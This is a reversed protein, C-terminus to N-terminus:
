FTYRLKLFVEDREAIASLGEYRTRVNFDTQTDFLQLPYRAVRNLGPGGYFGLVGVTISFSGTMRYTLQSIVGGSASGFDHVFVLSPLLRDQFYGTAVALTALASFSETDFSADHGPLYRFFVQTNLFFTRDANLFNVFTPRDISVTLNFVDAQQVLSRDTNSAFSAGDIWTFEFGWSTKTVDEAFDFSLGMVNRKPYKIVAEGGGHWQWDRRGFRGNGGAM